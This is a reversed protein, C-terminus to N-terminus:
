VSIKLSMTNGMAYGTEMSIFLITINYTFMMVNNFSSKGKKGISRARFINPHCM